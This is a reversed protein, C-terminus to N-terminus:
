TQADHFKLVTWKTRCGLAIEYAERETYPGEIEAIGTDSYLVYYEKHLDYTIGDVAEFSM